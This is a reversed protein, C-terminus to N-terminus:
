RPLGPDHQRLALGLQEAEKELGMWRLKLMQKFLDHKNRDETSIETRKCTSAHEGSRSDNEWRNISNPHM